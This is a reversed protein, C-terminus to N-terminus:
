IKYVVTLMNISNKKKRLETVLEKVNLWTGKVTYVSFKFGSITGPRPCTCYRSQSHGTRTKHKGLGLVREERDEVVESGLVTEADNSKGVPDFHPLVAQDWDGGVVDPIAFDVDVM